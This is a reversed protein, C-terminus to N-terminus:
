NNDGILKFITYYYERWPASEYKDWIPDNFVAANNCLRVHGDGFLANVAYSSRGKHSLEKKHRLVDTMYPIRQDLLDARKCAMQPIGFSNKPSSRSTPFYEYGIRVWQNHAETNAPSSNFNQPLTGWPLPDIYSEYKYLPLRNSPCYFVKPERIYKGEYLCALRMAKLKGTPWMWGADRRYVVYPHMEEDEEDADTYGWWPMSGDFDSAYMPIALGIQKLQNSCATRSATEKARSLAPMLIAMLLAIIAIVVLLEILTFGTKKTKM